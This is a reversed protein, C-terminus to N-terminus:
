TIDPSKVDINADVGMLIRLFITFVLSLSMSACYVIVGLTLCAQFTNGIIPCPAFLTAM